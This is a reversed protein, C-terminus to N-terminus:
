KTKLSDIEAKLEQIAKILVPILEQYRVGMPKEEDEDVDVVEPFVELLDQAILFNRRVGEKDTKYKGIVARINKLKDLVSIPEIIDKFREDSLTTWSTAGRLLQVGTGNINDYIEFRGNESAAGNGVLWIPSGSEMFQIRGAKNAVGNINFNVNVGATAIGVEVAGGATIRLREASGTVDQFIFSGADSRVSYTRGGSATDAFIIGIAEVANNGTIALRYAGPSATGIGVNGASTIRM